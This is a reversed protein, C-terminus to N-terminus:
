QILKEGKATIKGIQLNNRPYDLLGDQRMQQLHYRTNFPTVGLYEAIERVTPLYGAGWQLRREESYRKMFHLIQVRRLAHPLHQKRKQPM